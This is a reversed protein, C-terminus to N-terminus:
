LFDTIPQGPEANLFRTGTERREFRQRVKYYALDPLAAYGSADVWKWSNELYFNVYGVVSPNATAKGKNVYIFLPRSLPNYTNRQVNAIPVPKVCEGSLPNKIAVVNLRDQNQTFFAIGVYALGFKNGVVGQVLTNQNHSPTFDTRSNRAKGTVAQTFYDFTGTDSAPAFLLLRGDPFKPNIQNWNTIKGESKSNWMTNLEKIKLCKAFKNERNVIVALGDLATPLEIFEIGNKKCTEIEVKRIPRSAGVIDISGACFKSFGGGTGSSAVSVQATPHLKQYEEAVALSLSFGVAGGDLSVQQVGDGRNSSCSALITSNIVTLFLWFLKNKRWLRLNM